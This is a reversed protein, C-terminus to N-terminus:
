DVRGTDPSVTLAETLLARVRESVENTSGAIEEPPLVALVHLYVETRRWPFNQRISETGQVAMVVLPVRAKQAIKFVGNHFPLLEGTRSRTGEPYVGISVVDNQLLEAAFRITKMARRPIERDIPLYNARYIMPGAIPIRHNEPKTIFAVHRDRLAWVTTIPDYGSRHNSVVVFRGEPIAEAGSLHIRVRGFRCLQSIVREVERRM